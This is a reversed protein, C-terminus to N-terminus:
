NREIEKEREKLAAEREELEREWQEYRDILKTEYNLITPSSSSISVAFMGVICLFLVLCVYLAAQYRKRFDFNQVQIQTEPTTKREARRKKQISEELVPHQVPIPLIAEADIFPISKLYEQLEGLYTYGVATEFLRQQVMKNYIGLVSEPADTNIKERLYRVGDAEKKARAAEEENEFCFGNIMIGNKKESM